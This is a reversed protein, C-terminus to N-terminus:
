FPMLDPDAKPGAAAEEDSIPESQDGNLAKWEASLHMGCYNSTVIWHMRGGEALISPLNEEEDFTYWVPENEATLEDKGAPMVSKVCAITAGKSTTKHIILLQCQKGIGLKCQACQIFGNSALNRLFFM